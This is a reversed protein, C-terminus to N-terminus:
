PQAITQAAMQDRAMHVSDADRLLDLLLPSKGEENKPVRRSEVELENRFTRNRHVADTEGDILAFLLTEGGSHDWEGQLVSIQATTPNTIFDVDFGIKDSFINLAQEM